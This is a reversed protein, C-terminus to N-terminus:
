KKKTCNLIHKSQKKHENKKMDFQVAEVYDLASSTTSHSYRKGSQCLRTRVDGNQPLFPSLSYGFLFFNIFNSTILKM